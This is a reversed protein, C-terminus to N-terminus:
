KGKNYKERAKNISEELNQQLSNHVDTKTQRVASTFFTHTISGRSHSQRKMKRHNVIKVTRTKREGKGAEMFTLIPNYNKGRGILEVRGGSGDKFVKVMTGQRFSPLNYFKGTNNRFLIAKDVNPHKGNKYKM